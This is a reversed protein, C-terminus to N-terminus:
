SYLLGDEEWAVLTNQDDDLQAQTESALWLYGPASTLSDTVVLQAGPKPMHATVVSAIGDLQEQAIVRKVEGSIRSILFHAIVHRSYVMAQEAKRKFEAPALQADVSLELQTYPAYERLVAVADGGHMRANVEVLVPETATEILEVHASGREIGLAQVVGKAYRILAEHQVPDPTLFASHRYVIKGDANRVKKYRTVNTVLCTGDCSVTDVVWEQGDLFEQVLAHTNPAGFLNAAGLVRGVAALVEDRTHCISINDSGASAAPKVVVPYRGYGDVWAGAQAVSAVKCQAAARLGAERTAEQMLYKDRRLASTAPDNGPLGFRAALADMLAIGTEVGIMVSCPAYPKLSDILAEFDDGADLVAAYREPAFTSAFVAPVGRTLVAVCAIGRREFEDVLFRGSSFPDLVVAHPLPTHSM